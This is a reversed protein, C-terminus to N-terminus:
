QCKEVGGEALFEKEHIKFWVMMWVLGGDVFLYFLFMYKVPPFEGADMAVCLLIFLGCLNSLSGVKDIRRDLLEREEVTWVVRCIYRYYNHVVFSYFAGSFLSVTFFVDVGAKIYLLIPFYMLLVFLIVLWFPLEYIYETNNYKIRKRNQIKDL